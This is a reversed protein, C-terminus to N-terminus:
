ACRDWMAKFALLEGVHRTMDFLPHRVWFYNPQRGEFGIPPEDLLELLVQQRSMYHVSEGGARSLRM